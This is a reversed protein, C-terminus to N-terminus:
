HKRNLAHFREEWMDKEQKMKSLTDEFEEVDQNLLTSPEDVVLSMPRECAYLIKLELARNKVWITYAELAVCNCPGLKFRGKEAPYRIRPRSLRDPMSM